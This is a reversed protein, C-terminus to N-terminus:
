AVGHSYVGDHAITADYLNLAETYTLQKLHCRAPAVKDLIRRVQDAQALTIPRVLQVRYEAWHDGPAHDRSGDHTYIGNYITDPFREIVTADGYGAAALARKVSAVTGKRRHVEISARIVARQVEESWRPDWEDVSLAHALWPLLAAPCTDPNWLAANPVPVAGIRATALDLAEEAETRNPPLLTAM